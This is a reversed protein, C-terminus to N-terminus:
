STRGLLFFNERRKRAFLLILATMALVLVIEREGGSRDGFLGVRLATELLGFLLAGALALPISRLGGVVAIILGRMFLMLMGEGASAVTAVMLAGALAAVAGAVAYVGTAILRLRTGCWVSAEFDDAIARMALGTYTYNLILALVVVLGVVILLTTFRHTTVFQGWVQAGGGGFPSEAIAGLSSAASVSVAAAAADNVGLAAAAASGGGGSGIYRPAYAILLIMVGLSLVTLTMAPLRAVRRSMVVAGYAGGMAAGSLLVTLLAERPGMVPLVWGTHPVEFGSMLTRYALGGCVAIGGHVFAITRSVRYCLVISIPLLGYLGAQLLGLVLTPKILDTNM